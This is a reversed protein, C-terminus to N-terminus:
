KEQAIQVRDVPAKTAVVTALEVCSQVDGAPIDIATHFRAFRATFIHSRSKIGPISRHPPDSEPDPEPSSSPLTSAPTTDFRGRTELRASRTTLKVVSRRDRYKAM